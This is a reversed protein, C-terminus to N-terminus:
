TAGERRKLRLLEKLRGREQRAFPPWLLIMGVFAVCGIGAAALSPMSWAAAVRGILISATTYLALVGFKSWSPSVVFDRRRLHTFIITFSAASGLANAAVLAWLGIHPFLPIATLISVSLIINGLTLIQTEEVVKVLIDILTTATAFLAVM